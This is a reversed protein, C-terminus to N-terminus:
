LTEFFAHMEAGFRDMNYYGEVLKRGREGMQRALEPEHHLRSIADALPGPDDPPVFIGCGAADIDLETKLASTRTLIVPRSMVMAELLNTFGCATEETPDHKVVILSGASGAYYNHLLDKYTLREEWGAGGQVIEVNGPWSFDAPVGHAIVRIPADTRQSARNLTLFDRNTRGCALFADPRFPLNPFFALDMGWSLRKVKARPALHRAHDEAAPNLAIIGDHAKAFKLPERAYLLSVMRQRLLGFKRLFPLWYMANHACYIIDDPQLWIRIARYLSLDHPLPRRHLYFDPLAGAVGVEYGHELLEVCGWLRNSPVLGAKYKRWTAAGGSVNIFLVRRRAPSAPSLVLLGDQERESVEGLSRLPETTSVDTMTSKM